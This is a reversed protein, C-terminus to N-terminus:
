STRGSDKMDEDAIFGIRRKKQAPPAMLQRIANIIMNIDQDHSSLRKELEALKDSLKRHTSFMERLRIFARVVFISMEVAKTSNLINAAMIAGHETFANPLYSSFKLKSLHDCNTIVQEKEEKTIQFMFDDPFREINRKVAQNLTRTEVGYLRALDADIIVRQGRLNLIKSAVSEVTVTGTLNAM